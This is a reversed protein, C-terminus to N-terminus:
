MSSPDAINFHGTPSLYLFITFKLSPSSILFSPVNLMDRAGLLELWQAVGLLEATLADLRHVSPWPNSEQRSSLNKEKDWAWSMNFIGDKRIEEGLKFNVM